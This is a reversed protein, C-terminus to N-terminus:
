FGLEAIFRGNISNDLQRTTAAQQEKAIAKEEEEV